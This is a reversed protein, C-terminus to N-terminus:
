AVRDDLVTPVSVVAVVVLAVVAGATTSWVDDEEDILEAFVALVVFL